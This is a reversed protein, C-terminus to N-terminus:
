EAQDSAASDDAEPTIVDAALLPVEVECCVGAPEYDLKANRYTSYVLLSGFGKRSPKEVSPGDREQWKFKLRPRGDDSIVSWALEIKGDRSSLAGYKAANTSLEHLLLSLDQASKPGLSVIPGEVSVRAAFPKLHLDVLERLRLSRNASKTIQRNARALALLRGEFDERTRGDSLTQHAIAQVLALLNNSRHQIERLLLGERAEAQRKETVDNISAIWGRVGGEADWDPVYTFQVTRPGVGLYKVVTEYEVREGLLVKRIHPLLAEFAEKGMFDVIPRGELDQPRRGLMAAYAGSVNAYKLDATCRTVLFPTGNLITLLEEQGAAPAVLRLKLQGPSKERM